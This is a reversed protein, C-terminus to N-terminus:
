MVAKFKPCPISVNMIQRDKKIVKLRVIFQFRFHTNIFIKLKFKLNKIM